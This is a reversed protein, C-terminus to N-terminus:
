MLVHHEVCPFQRRLQSLRELDIDALIVGQGEEKQALVKGWPEVVMSHGYTHRGNEHTGGQNPALVYCLNEIARARLLVEWHAAGTVATFASPVSLLQAGRQTLYQYLEPFRLDYCITLGIKGVPTDVLAIDKGAEITLSEQHKEQESVIVDFLHIKDYRAVNLGKDDYVICSARVKSGMSKLPITGAIIWVQLDRALESIRQQIPGQGYYEAIHLKERENMGMFAFNEPLVVLSAEQERAEILYQETLQLNDAIKASSVMQVLAVRNM